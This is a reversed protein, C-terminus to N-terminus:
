DPTAPTGLVTDGGRVLVKGRAPGRWSRRHRGLMIARPPREVRRDPARGHASGAQAAQREWPEAVDHVLGPRVARGTGPRCVECGVHRRRVRGAPHSTGRHPAFDPGGSGAQPSQDYRRAAGHLGESPAARVVSTALAVATWTRGRRAASIQGEVQQRLALIQKPMAAVDRTTETHRDSFLAAGSLLGTPPTAAVDPSAVVQEIHEVMWRIAKVEAALDDVRQALPDVAAQVGALTARLPRAMVTHLIEDFASEGEDSPAQDPALWEELGYLDQVISTKGIGQPGAVAVVRM